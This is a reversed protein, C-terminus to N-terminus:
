PQGAAITGDRLDMILGLSNIDELIGLKQRVLRKVERLAAVTDTQGSKYLESAATLEANVRQYDDIYVKQIGHIEAFSNHKYNEPNIAM